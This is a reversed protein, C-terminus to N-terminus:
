AMGHITMQSRHGAGFFFRPPDFIRDAENKFQKQNFSSPQQRM